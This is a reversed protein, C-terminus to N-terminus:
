PWPSYISKAWWTLWPPPLQKITLSKGDLNWAGDSNSAKVRFTYTGASLNTYLAQQNNGLYRWEKDFGELKYSYQNKSPNRFSLAAFKIAFMNQQHNFTLQKTQNIAQSLLGTSDNVEVPRTFLDLQTFVVPPPTNIKESLAINYIRLGKQGGFILEGRQSVLAVQTDLGGISEGNFKEFNEVAKTDPNFKVIGKNTGMWLNGEPDEIISRIGIDAFGEKEGFVTFTEDRENFQHLGGDTGFWLRKKKDEYISLISGNVLSGPLTSNPVYRKSLGTKRDLLNLGGATGVWFRKESDEFVGWVLPSCLTEANGNSIFNTFEGTHKDFKSLGGNHTSVWLTNNSDEYIQWVYADNLYKTTVTNEKPGAPDFPIQILQDLKADYKLLGYAWTGFWLDGDSDM